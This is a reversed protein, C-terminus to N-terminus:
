MSRENYTSRTQVSLSPPSSISALIEWRGGMTQRNQQECTYRRRPRTPFDFCQSAWAPVSSSIHSAWTSANGGGGAQYSKGSQSHTHGRCISFRTPTRIFASPGRALCTFMSSSFLSVSRVAEVSGATVASDSTSVYQVAVVIRASVASDGMSVPDEVSFSETLLCHIIWFNSECHSLTLTHARYIYTYYLYHVRHLGLCDCALDPRAPLLRNRWQKNVLRPRGAFKALFLPRPM